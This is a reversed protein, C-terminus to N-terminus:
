GLGSYGLYSLRETFLRHRLHYEPCTDRRRMAVYDDVLGSMHKQVEDLGLYNNSLAIPTRVEAIAATGLQSSSAKAM